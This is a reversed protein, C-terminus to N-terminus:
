QPLFHQSANTVVQLSLIDSLVSSCHDFVISYQSGQELQWPLTRGKSGNACTVAGTFMQEHVAYCRMYEM